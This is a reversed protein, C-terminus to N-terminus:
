NRVPTIKLRFALLSDSAYRHRYSIPPGFLVFLSSRSVERVSHTRGGARNAEEGTLFQLIRKLKKLECMGGGGNHELPLASVRNRVTCLLEGKNQDM